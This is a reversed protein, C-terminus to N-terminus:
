EGARSAVWRRLWEAAEPRLHPIRLIGADSLVALGSGLPGPSELRVAEVRALSLRKRSVIAPGLRRELELSGTAVSLRSRQLWATALLVAVFVLEVGAFGALIALPMGGAGALGAMFALGVASSSLSAVAVALLLMRGRPTGSRVEIEEAGVERRIGLGPPPPGPDAERAVRADLADPSRLVSDRGISDELPLDLARALAEAERRARAEDAFDRIALEEPLGGPVRAPDFVLSLPYRVQSHDNGRRVVRDSRVRLLAERPVMAHERARRSRREFEISGPRIELVIRDWAPLFGVALFLVSMGALVAVLGPERHHLGAAAAGAALAVGAGGFLFGFLRTSSIVRVHGPAIREIRGMRQSQQVWARSRPVKQSAMAEFPSESVLSRRPRDVM